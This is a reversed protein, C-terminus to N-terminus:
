NLQRKMADTAQLGGGVQRTFNDGDPPRKGRTDTGLDPQSAGINRVIWDAYARRGALVGGLAERVTGCTEAKWESSKELTSIALGLAGKHEVVAAVKATGVRSWDTERALIDALKPQPPPLAASNLVAWGAPKAGTPYLKTLYLWFASADKAAKRARDFYLAADVKISPDVSFSAIAANYAGYGQGLSRFIASLRLMEAESPRQPPPNATQANKNTITM